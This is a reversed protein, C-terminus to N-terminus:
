QWKHVIFVWRELNWRLGCLEIQIKRNRLMIFFKDKIKRVRKLRTIRKALTGSALEKPMPLNTKEEGDSSNKFFKLLTEFSAM